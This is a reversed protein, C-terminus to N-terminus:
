RATGTVATTVATQPDSLESGSCSEAADGAVAASAGPVAAGRCRGLHDHPLTALRHLRRRVVGVRIGRPRLPRDQEDVRLGAVARGGAGGEAVTGAFAPDLYDDEAGILAERREDALRHRGARIREAHGAAVSGQRDHGRGCM